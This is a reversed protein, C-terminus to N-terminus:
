TFTKQQVAELYANGIDMAWFDHNNLEALFMLLRFGCLKVVVSYVSELPVITFNGDTFLQSKRQEDHKVDVVFHVQINKYDQPVKASM